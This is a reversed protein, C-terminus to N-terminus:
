PIFQYHNKYYDPSYAKIGTIICYKQLYLVNDLVKYIDITHADSIKEKGNIDKEMLWLGYEEVEDEPIEIEIFLSEYRIEPVLMEAIERNHIYVTKPFRFYENYDPGSGISETKSCINAKWTNGDSSLETVVAENINFGISILREKRSICVAVIICAILVVAAIGTEIYYIKRKEM